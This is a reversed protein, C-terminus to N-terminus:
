KAYLRDMLEDTKSKDLSKIIAELVGMISNDPLRVGNQTPTLERDKGAVFKRIDYGPNKNSDFPVGQFLQTNLGDKAQTNRIIYRSALSM